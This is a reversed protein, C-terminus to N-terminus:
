FTIILGVGNQTMGVDLIIQPSQDYSITQGNNFIDISEKRKKVFQSENILAITGSLPAILIWNIIRIVEGPKPCWLDCYEMKDSDFVPAVAGVLFTGITFYGQEKAKKKHRLAKKYVNFADNNIIFVSDMELYNYIQNNYQYQSSTFSHIQQANLGISFCILLLGIFLLRGM